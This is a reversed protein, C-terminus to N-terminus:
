ERSFVRGHVTEGHNPLTVPESAPKQPSVACDDCGYAGIHQRTDDWWKGLSTEKAESGDEGLFQELKTLVLQKESMATSQMIQACSDGCDTSNSFRQQFNQITAPDPDVSLWQLEQRIQVIKGPEDLGSDAMIRGVVPLIRDHEAQFGIKQALLRAAARDEGEFTDNDLLAAEVVVGGTITHVPYSLPFSSGPAIVPRSKTGLEGTEGCRVDCEPKGAANHFGAPLLRVNFATIGHNSMNKVSFKYFGGDQGAFNIQISPVSSEMVMNSPAANSPMDQAWASAICLFCVALVPKM